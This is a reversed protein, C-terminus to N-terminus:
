LFFIPSYYILIFIFNVKMFLSANKDHFKRETNPRNFISIETKTRQLEKQWLFDKKEQYFDYDIKPFPQLSNYRVMETSAKPSNVNNLNDFKLGNQSKNESIKKITMLDKDSQKLNNRLPSFNQMSKSVPITKKNNSKHSQPSMPARPNEPEKSKTLNLNSSKANLKKSNDVTNIKKSSAVKAQKM